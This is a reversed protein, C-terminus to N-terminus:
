DVATERIFTIFDTNVPTAGAARIATAIQGRHYVGHLAVHLLIDRVSTHFQTGAFNRYTVASELEDDSLSDFYGAYARENEAALAVCEKLSLAPSKDIESTEEDKLRLWWIKESVLLHALLGLAKQNQEPMSELLGAIRM